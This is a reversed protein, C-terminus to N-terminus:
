PEGRRWFVVERELRIGTRAFTEGAVKAALEM